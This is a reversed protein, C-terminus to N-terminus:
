RNVQIHPKDWGNKWDGGWEIVLKMEKAAEKFADAVAKFKKAPANLQLKGDYFPYFDIADGTLHKSNMTKSVGKAVYEKQTEITRLGEVVVFDVTTKKLALYALEKVDAKVGALALMSRKSFSHKDAM